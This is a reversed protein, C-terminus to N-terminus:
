RSQDGLDGVQLVHGALHLILVRILLLHVHHMRVDLETANRGAGCPVIEGIMNSLRCRVAVVAVMINARNQTHSTRRCVVSILLIEIVPVMCMYM